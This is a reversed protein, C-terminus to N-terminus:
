PRTEAIPDACCTAPWAVDGREWIWDGVANGGVALATALQAHLCKVRAPDGVGGVLHGAHLRAHTAHAGAIAEHMGEDDELARVGGGAELRSVAVGLARCALWYRTPFPRGNLDVPDNELM